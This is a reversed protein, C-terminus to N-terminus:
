EHVKKVESIVNIQKRRLAEGFKAGELGQNVLDMTDVGRVATLCKNLYDAQPYAVDEFKPGRGRADAINCKNFSELIWPKRICDLGKFLKLVKLPRMNFINHSYTHWYTVKRALDRWESPAKLRDCLEDVLPVGLGEHGHLTGDREYAIAKGLDHCVIAFLEEPTCEQQVGSELCLMTHLFTWKEPHFDERQPITYLDNLEKFWFDEGV